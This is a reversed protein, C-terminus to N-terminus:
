ARERKPTLMKTFISIDTKREVVPRFGGAYFGACWVDTEPAPLEVLEIMGDGNSYLNSITYIRGEVAHEYPHWLERWWGSLTQPHQADICVVKQGVYFNM